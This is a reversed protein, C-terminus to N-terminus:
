PRVAVLVAEMNSRHGLRIRTFGARRLARLTDAEKMVRDPAQDAVNHLVWEELLDYKRMPLFTHFFRRLALRLAAFRERDDQPAYKDANVFLGGPKLVRRIQRHLRARYTTTMNHLTMASAVADASRSRQGALYKQADALVVRCRGERIFAALNKKARAIMKPESDIAVVTAAAQQALISRTTLGDGCGIELIRPKSKKLRRLERGVQSQLQDFHPIVRRIFDYEDGM